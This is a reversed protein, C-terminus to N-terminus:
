TKKSSGRGVSAQRENRSASYRLRAKSGTNASPGPSQPVVDPRKTLGATSYTSRSTSRAKDDPHYYFLGFAEPDLKWVIKGPPFTLPMPGFWKRDVQSYSRPGTVKVFSIKVHDYLRPGIDHKSKSVFLFARDRTLTPYMSHDLDEQFIQGFQIRRNLWALRDKDSLFYHFPRRVFPLNLFASLLVRSLTWM